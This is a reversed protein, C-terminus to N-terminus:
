EPRIRDGGPRDLYVRDRRQGVHYITPMRGLYTGWMSFTSGGSAVLVNARSIALLDALASGFSRRRCNPLEALGALEETTGDSFVHIPAEVAMQERLRRAVGIFWHLPTRVSVKDRRLEEEDAPAFDGRRIHLTISGRFDERLGALHEPRVMRLLQERVFAHHGQLPRFMGDMGTFTVVGQMERDLKGEYLEQEQFRPLSWLARM